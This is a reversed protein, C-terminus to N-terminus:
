RGAAAVRHLRKWAAAVGTPRHLPVPVVAGRGGGDGGHGLVGTPGEAPEWLRVCGCDLELFPESPQNVFGSDGACTGFQELLGAGLGVLWDDM